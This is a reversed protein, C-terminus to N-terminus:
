LPSNPKQPRKLRKSTKWLSYETTTLSELYIQIDEQKEDNLLQKLEKVSKNPNAKDQPSRTTHWRKGMKRKELIKQKVMPACEDMNLSKHPNPTSNWAAQQIVQVVQHVNDEIDGNAKLPVDLTLNEMIHKRFEEWKKKPSPTLASTKLIIKSNLTIIVPSHDSSQDFSSESHLSNSPIRKVVGFDILDPVKRRDSPWYTPEGTSDHTLNDTQMAKFLERGKPTILRSGWHCHKANYDGGALLRHGLNHFFSLFHEAKIAHKPPCYAAAITLPGILDEITVSTAQLHELNCHDHLHHKICNRILIATGGHATGDPHQTDHNPIKIYSKQAFHTESILM